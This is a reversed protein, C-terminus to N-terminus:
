CNTLLLLLLASCCGTAGWKTILAPNALDVYGPGEATGMLATGALLFGM